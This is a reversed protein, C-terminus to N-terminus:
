WRERQYNFHLIIGELLAMQLALPHPCVLPLSPLQMILIRAKHIYNKASTILDKTQKAKAPRM